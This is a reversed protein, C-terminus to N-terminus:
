DGAEKLKQIWECHKIFPGCVSYTFEPQRLHSEPILNDGTLLFNNITDNM